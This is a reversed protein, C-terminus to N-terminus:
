TVAVAEMRRSETSANVLAYYSAIASDRDLDPDSLSERAMQGLFRNINFGMQAAAVVVGNLRPLKGNRMFMNSNQWHTIGLVESM